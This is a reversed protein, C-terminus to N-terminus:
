QPPSYEGSRSAHLQGSIGRAAVFASSWAWQFNFGGIRGDVDLIEGVLYLGPCCRSAMTASNIETLPVGGATVEAHGFGRTGCVPLVLETLAHILSRRDEKSLHAMTTRDSICLTHLLVGAVRAPLLRALVSDIQARPHAAGLELLRQEAAAFDLGPLLNVTITVAKGELRGREWLRSANMAVPGSVGFHTWLMAGSLRVPRDNGVRILLEVEQAIGSLLAHFDGELLLAVLGPTTPVITHGLQRALEYGFGDSGTKPLSKGGTALVVLRARLCTSQAADPSATADHTHTSHLLFADSHREMSVVRHDSLVAVGLREAESLLANLVTRASNSDPFLKGIEEEHLTVGLEGFFAITQEVSLSGLVKRIVHRSGGWFDEPRVRVNTVNCRGGGSVLIKAGIKKAGDVVVIRAGPTPASNNTTLERALQRAAFIGTALGAAGAGIIIVDFVDIEAVSANHISSRCNDICPNAGISCHLRQAL